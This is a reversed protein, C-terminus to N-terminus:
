LETSDAGQQAAISGVKQGVYALAARAAAVTLARSIPGGGQQPTPSAKVVLKNRKALELLTHVDPSIIEPRQPVVLYGIAAALGVCAWPYRAVYEQWDVLRRASRFVDDVDGALDCRVAEMRRQIVAAADGM